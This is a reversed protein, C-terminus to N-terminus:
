LARLAKIIVTDLKGPKVYIQGRMEVNVLCDILVPM